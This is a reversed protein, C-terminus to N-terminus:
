GPIHTVDRRGRIGHRVINCRAVVVTAQRSPRQNPFQVIGHHLLPRRPGRPWRRRRVRPPVVVAVDRRRLQRSLRRHVVTSSELSLSSSPLPRRRRRDQHSPSTTTIINGPHRTDRMGRVIHSLKLPAAARCSGRCCLCPPLLLVIVNPLLHQLPPARGVHRLPSPVLTPLAHCSQVNCTFIHANEILLIGSDKVWAM